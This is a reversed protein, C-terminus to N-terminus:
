ANILLGGFSHWLFTILLGSSIVCSNLFLTIIFLVFGYKLLSAIQIIELNFDM